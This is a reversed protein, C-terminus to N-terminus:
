FKKKKYSKKCLILKQMFFVNKLMKVDNVNNKFFPM